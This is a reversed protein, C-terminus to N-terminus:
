TTGVSVVGAIMMANFGIRFAAALPDLPPRTKAEGAIVVLDLSDLTIVAILVWGFWTM